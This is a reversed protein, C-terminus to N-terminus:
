NSNYEFIFSIITIIIEYFGLIWLKNKKYLDIFKLYLGLSIFSTIFILIIDPLLLDFNQYLLINNNIIKNIILLSIGGLIFFIETTIMIFITYRKSIGLLYSIFITAMMRSIGKQLSFIQTLGISIIAFISLYETKNERKFLNKSFLLMGSTILFGYWLPIDLNLPSFISIFKKRLLIGTGGIFSILFISIIDFIIKKIPFFSFLKKFMIYFFGILIILTPIHALIENEFTLSPSFPYIKKYLECHGSSSLPLLEYLIQILILNNM